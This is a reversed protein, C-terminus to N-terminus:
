KDGMNKKFEESDSYEKYYEDGSTLINKWQKHRTAILIQQYESM